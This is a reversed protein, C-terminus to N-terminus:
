YEAKANSVRGNRRKKSSLKKSKFESLLQDEKIFSRYKNDFTIKGDQSGIVIFGQGVPSFRRAYYAGIIGTESLIDGNGGFKNFIAPVYGYIGAGPSYVGYGGEYEKLYHSAVNKSDWFYAIGTTSTNDQLFANLDLASPYPNGILKSDGENINLEYVGSNPRGQFDYRQKNGPNNYINYINVATNTGSVGKMTFGEGPQISFNNGIFHWDSYDTGSFKYIWKNSITLPQSTGNYDSTIIAPISELKTIPDFFLKGFSNNSGTSSVPMSWYNYTFNSADGEQYLSITGDGTNKSNSKGQILQAENRLYLNPKPNEGTNRILNLEQEVFVLAGESYLYTDSNQYPQISLQCHAVFPVIFLVLIYIQRM